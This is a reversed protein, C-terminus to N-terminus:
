INVLYEQFEHETLLEEIQNVQDVETIPFLKTKREKWQACTQIAQVNDSSKELLANVKSTLEAIAEQQQKILKNNSVIYKVLTNLQSNKVLVGSDCDDYNTAAQTITQSDDNRRSTPTNSCTTTSPSRSPTASRHVQVNSLIKIPRHKNFSDENILMEPFEPINEKETADSTSGESSDDDDLFSSLSFLIYTYTM